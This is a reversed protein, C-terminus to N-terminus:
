KVTKIQDVLNTLKNWRGDEDAELFPIQHNILFNDALNQRLRAYLALQTVDFLQSEFCRYGVRLDPHCLAADILEVPLRLQLEQAKQIDALVNDEVSWREPIAGDFEELWIRRKERVVRVGEVENEIQQPTLGEENFRRRAASLAETTQLQYLEEDHRYAGESFLSFELKVVSDESM